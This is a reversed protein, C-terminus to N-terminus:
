EVMRIGSTSTGLAGGSSSPSQDANPPSALAQFAPAFVTMASAVQANRDTPVRQATTKPRPAFAKPMAIAPPADQSAVDRAM